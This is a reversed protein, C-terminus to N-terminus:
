LLIGQTDVACPYEFGGFIGAEASHVAQVAMNKTNQTGFKGAATFILQSHQDTPIVASKKLSLIATFL